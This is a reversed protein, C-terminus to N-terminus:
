RESVAFDPQGDAASQNYRLGESSFDPAALYALFSELFANFTPM